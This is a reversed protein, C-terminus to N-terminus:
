SMRSLRNISTGQIGKLFADRSLGCTRYVLSVGSYGLRKAGNPATLDRTREDLHPLISRLKRPLETLTDNVGDPWLVRTM